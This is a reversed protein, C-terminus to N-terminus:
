SHNIIHHSYIYIFFFFIILKQIVNKIFTYKKCHRRTSKLGAWESVSTGHLPTRSPSHFSPQQQNTPINYNLFPATLLPIDSTSSQNNNSM